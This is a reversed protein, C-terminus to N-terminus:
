RTATGCDAGCDQCVWRAEDTFPDHVKAQRAHRDCDTHTNM